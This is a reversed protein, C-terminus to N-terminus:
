IYSTSRRIECPCYRSRRGELRKQHTKIGERKAEGIITGVMSRTNMKEKMLFKELFLLTAMLCFFDGVWECIYFSHKIILEDIM